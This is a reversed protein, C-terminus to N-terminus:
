AGCRRSGTMVFRSMRSKMDEHPVAAERLPTTLAGHVRDVEGRWDSVFSPSPKKIAMRCRGSPLRKVQPKAHALAATLALAPSSLDARSPRAADM